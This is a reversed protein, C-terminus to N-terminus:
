NPLGSVSKLVSYGFCFTSRNDTLKKKKKFSLAISIFVTNPICTKERANLVKFYLALRGM